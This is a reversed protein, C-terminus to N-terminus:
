HLTGRPVLCPPPPQLCPLPSPPIFMIESTGPLICLESLVAPPFSVPTIFSFMLFYKVPVYAICTYLFFNFIGLLTDAIM